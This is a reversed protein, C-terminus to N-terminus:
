PGCETPRVCGEYCDTTYSVVFAPAKCSPPLRDCIMGSTITPENCAAKGGEACTAFIEPCGSAPCDGFVSHCYDSLADCTAEDPVNACPFPALCEACGPGSSGPAGCGVFTQDGMCDPCYQTQCDSFMKCTTEDLGTCALPPPCSPDILLAHPSVDSRYCSRYVAEGTASCTGCRLAACGATSSCTTEDLDSCTPPPAPCSTMCTVAAGTLGCGAYVEGGCCYNPQCDSRTKCTAENLGGCSAQVCAEACEIPSEGLTACGLFTSQNPCAHCYQTQCDM